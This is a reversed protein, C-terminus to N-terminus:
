ILFNEWEDPMNNHAKGPGRTHAYCKEMPNRAYLFPWYHIIDGDDYLSNKMVNGSLYWVMARNGSRPSNISTAKKRRPPLLFTLYYGQCGGASHGIIQYTNINIGNTVAKLHEHFKVTESWWKRHFKCRSLPKHPHKKFPRVRPWAYIICDLYDRWINSGLIKIYLTYGRLMYRAELGRKGDHYGYTYIENENM